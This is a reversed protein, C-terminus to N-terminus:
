DWEEQVMPDQKMEEIEQQKIDYELPNTKAYGKSVWAMSTIM